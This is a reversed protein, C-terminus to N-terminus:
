LRPPGSTRAHGDPATATDTKASPAARAATGREGRVRGRGSALRVEQRGDRYVTRASGDPHERRKFEATHVDRQGDSFVITKDGNRAVCLLTGDPFLTEERDDCLRTVTGDPFVTEKLGNPYFKETRKNPFRVVVLGSPHTIRTTRTSACYYVQRNDPLTKKVDGNSFRLITTRLGQDELGERGAGRARAAGTPVRGAPRRAAGGAKESETGAPQATHSSSAPEVPLTQSSPASPPSLAQGLLPASRSRAARRRAMEEGGPVPARRGGAPRAARAGLERRPRPSAGPRGADPGPPGPSQEKLSDMEARLDRLIAAWCEQQTRLQQGLGAVERRLRLVAEAGRDEWPPETETPDAGAPPDEPDTRAPPDEPDEPDAGAPPDEPDAGAPPDEPDAPPDEPDAPPAEPDAGAPPAKPSSSDTPPEAEM